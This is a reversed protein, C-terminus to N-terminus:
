RCATAYDKWLADWWFPSAIAHRFYGTSFRPSYVSLLFGSTPDDIRALDPYFPL